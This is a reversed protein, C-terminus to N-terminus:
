VPFVVYKQVDCVRFDFFVGAAPESYNDNTGKIESCKETVVRTTGLFGSVPIQDSM